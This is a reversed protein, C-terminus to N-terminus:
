KKRRSIKQADGDTFVKHTIIFKETETKVLYYLQGNQNVELIANVSANKSLKEVATAALFNMQETTVPRHLSLLEGEESFLATVEQAKMLFKVEFLNERSTWTVNGADKFQQEFAKKVKETVPAAFSAAAFLMAACLVFMKKM